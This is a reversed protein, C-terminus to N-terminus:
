PVSSHNSKNCTHSTSPRTRSSNQHTSKRTFKDKVQSKLRDHLRSQVKTESLGHTPLPQRADPKRPDIRRYLHKDMQQSIKKPSLARM